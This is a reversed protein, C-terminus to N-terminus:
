GEGQSLSEMGLHIDRGGDGVGPSLAWDECIDARGWSGGAGREQERGAGNRGSDAGRRRERKRERERRKTEREMERERAKEEM